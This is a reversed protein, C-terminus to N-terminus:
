WVFWRRKCDTCQYVKVGPWEGRRYRFTFKGGCRCTTPKGGVM